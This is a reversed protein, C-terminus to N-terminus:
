GSRISGLRSSIRHFLTDRGESQVLALGPGSDTARARSRPDLFQSTDLSGYHRCALAGPTEMARSQSRISFTTSKPICYDPDQVHFMKPRPRRRKTM